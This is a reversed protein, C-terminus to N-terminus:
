FRHLYLLIVLACGWFAIQGLEELFTRVRLRLLHVITYKKMLTTARDPAAFYVIWDWLSRATIVIAYVTCVIALLWRWWDFFDFPPLNM